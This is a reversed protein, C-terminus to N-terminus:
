HARVQMWCQALALHYEPASIPLRPGKCFINQHLLSNQTCMQLCYLSTPPSMVSNGGNETQTDNQLCSHGRSLTLSQAQPQWRTTKNAVGWKRTSDWPTRCEGRVGLSQNGWNMVPAVPHNDRQWAWPPSRVPSHTDSSGRKHGRKWRCRMSHDYGDCWTPRPSIEAAHNDLCSLWSALIFVQVHTLSSSQAARPVSSVEQHSLTPKQLLLISKNILWKEWRVRRIAWYPLFSFM